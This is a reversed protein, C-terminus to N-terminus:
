WTLYLVSLKSYLYLYFSITFVPYPVNHWHHFSLFLKSIRKTVNGVGMTSREDIIPTLRVSNSGGKDVGAVTNVMPGIALYGRGPGPEWRLSLIGQGSSLNLWQLRYCLLALHPPPPPTPQPCVPIVLVSRQVWWACVVVFHASNYFYQM